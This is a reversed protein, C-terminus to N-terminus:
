AMKQAGVLSAVENQFDESLFYGYFGFGAPQGGKPQGGWLNGGGRGKGIDDEVSAATENPERM